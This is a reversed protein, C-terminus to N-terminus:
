APAQSAGAKVMEDVFLAACRATAEVNYGGELCAVVKPCTGLIAKAAWSYDKDLLGITGLPDSAHADFGASVLILEPKFEAVSSLLHFWGQLFQWPADCKLRLVNPATLRSMFDGPYGPQYTEAFLVRPDNSFSLVTGNGSHTDIDLIALRKVGRFLAHHAAIAVSNIFCFGAARNRQAHHGAYVPCFANDARGDLVADVAQCAAGASLKMAAWTHRNLITENDIRYVAGEAEPTRKILYEVFASDHNREIQSFEASHALVGEAGPVALVAKCITAIRNEAMAVHDAEADHLFINPHYYIHTTM